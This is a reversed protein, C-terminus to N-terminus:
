RRFEPHRKLFNEVRAMDDPSDVGLSDNETEIVTIVFHNELWRLQELHELQELKSSPIHVVEQLVEPRFGYLGIHKYFLGNAIEESVSQDSRVHPIAARSFYLADASGDEFETLVVKVTNADNLEDINEIKKALTAIEVEEEQEFADIVLNIDTPAIFPEDGQVNIVLDFDENEEELQELAAACRATGNPIHGSTMCVDGNFARVHEYIRKDDTAVMVTDAKSKSAQEYVRQIMSKGDIEELPKGPFRSSEFRAPIIVLSKFEEM